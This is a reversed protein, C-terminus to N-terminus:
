AMTALMAPTVEYRLPKRALYLACEDAMTKGMRAVENGMSGAIHPTLFVNPQTLLPSDDLPPEPWTVDLVATRDPFEQMARILDSEILQQGRGTNIFAANPLMKSFLAYTLMGQTAPLNAIHNSIVQCTSFIEELSARRAGCKELTEDPVFPDYALLELEYTNLRELVMRGIMGVGLIGVKTDYNGPLTSVYAHSAARGQREYRRVSQYFGKGALLIQSVAYEVVPVANAAWASFVRIGADLFPRAFFQVSGAGYFVARVKPLHIAIQEKSLVPMGWTSFILEAKLLADAHASLTDGTVIHPYLETTESLRRRTKEDFVKPLVSANDTMMVAFPKNM